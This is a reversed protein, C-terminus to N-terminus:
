INVGLTSVACCATNATSGSANTALLRLGKIQVTATDDVLGGTATTYQPADVADLTAATVYFNTGDARKFFPGVPIWAFENVLIDFQPIGINAVVSTALGTTVTQITYAVTTIVAKYAACTGGGKVFMWTNGNEEYTAGLPFGPNTTGYVSTLNVYASVTM